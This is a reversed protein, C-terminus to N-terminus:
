ELSTRMVSRTTRRRRISRCGGNARSQHPPSANEVAKKLASDILKGKPSCNKM